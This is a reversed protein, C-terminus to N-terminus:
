TLVGNSYIGGGNTDAGGTITVNNLTLTGAASVHFIRFTNNGSITYGGGEITIPTTISPLGNNGDVANNIATLTIDGTLSIVDPDAATNALNIFNILTAADSAPFVAAFTSRQPVFVLLLALCFVSLTVATYRRM